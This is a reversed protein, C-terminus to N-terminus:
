KIEELSFKYQKGTGRNLLFLNDEGEQITWSGSTGDVENGSGRTNNLHLDGTYINRWQNSAGGLDYVNDGAPSLSYQGATGGSEGVLVDAVSGVGGNTDFVLMANGGEGDEITLAANNGNNLSILTAQNTFSLGTGTINVYAGSAITLDTGDGSIYEGGEDHFFLKSGSGEIMAKTTALQLCFTTGNDGDKVPVLTTTAGGGDTDVHLLQEYSAAITQSGLAAM